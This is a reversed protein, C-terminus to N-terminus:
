IGLEEHMVDCRENWLQDYDSDCLVRDSFDAISTINKDLCWDVCIQYADWSLEENDWAVNIFEFGLDYLAKARTHGDTFIVKGNLRKVPIPGYEFNNEENLWSLVLSLKNNSIYLQSPQINELKMKFVEHM